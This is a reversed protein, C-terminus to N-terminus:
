SFLKIYDLNDKIKIIEIKDNEIVTIIDSWVLISTIEGVGVAWHVNRFLQSNPLFPIPVYQELNDTM